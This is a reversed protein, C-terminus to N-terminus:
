KRGKRAPKAALDEIARVGEAEIRALGLLLSARAIASASFIGGLKAAVAEVREVDERAVRVSYNVLRDQISM